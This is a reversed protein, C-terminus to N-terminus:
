NYCFARELRDPAQGVSSIHFRMHKPINPIPFRNQSALDIMPYSGNRSLGHEM